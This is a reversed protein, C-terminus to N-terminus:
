RVRTGRLAYFLYSLNPLPLAKALGLGEMKLVSRRVQPKTQSGLHPQRHYLYTRVTQSPLLNVFITFRMKKLNKGM